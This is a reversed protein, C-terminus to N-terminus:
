AAAVSADVTVIVDSRGLTELLLRVRETNSWTVIATRSTLAGCTIIV